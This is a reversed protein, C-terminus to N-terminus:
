IQKYKGLERGAFDKVVQAIKKQDLKAGTTEEVKEILGCDRLLMGYIRAVTTKGSGACFSTDTHATLREACALLVCLSTFCM